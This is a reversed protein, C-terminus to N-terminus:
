ARLQHIRDPLHQTPASETLSIRRFQEAHRLWSDAIKYAALQRQKADIGQDIHQSRGTDRDLELQSGCASRDCRCRRIIRSARLAGAARTRAGGTSRMGASLNARNDPSPTVM